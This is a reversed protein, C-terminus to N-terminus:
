TFQLAFVDADKLVFRLRVAKGALSSLNPSGKWRIAREVQDGIIEVSDDLSFGPLPRGTEDQVEVRIGGPASTSYNLLLRSGAFTLPM